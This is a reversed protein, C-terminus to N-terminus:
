PWCYMADLHKATRIATLKALTAPQGLYARETDISKRLRALADALNAHRDGARAPLRDIFLAQYPHAQVWALAALEAKQQREVDCFAYGNIVPGALVAFNRTAETVQALEPADMDLVANLTLYRDKAAYFWFVSQDRLGVDYLRIALVMMTMPTVMGPERQIMDRVAVIDAQANSTLLADYRKGVHVTPTGGDAPASQYYPLVYVDVRRVPKVADADAARLPSALLVLFVSTLLGAIRPM